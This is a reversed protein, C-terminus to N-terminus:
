QKLTEHLSVPVTCPLINGHYGCLRGHALEDHPCSVSSASRVSDTYTRWKQMM